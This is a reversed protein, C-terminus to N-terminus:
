SLQLLCPGLLGLNAQQLDHSAINLFSTTALSYDFLSNTFLYKGTCKRVYCLILPRVIVIRHKTPITYVNM